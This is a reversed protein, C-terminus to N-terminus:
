AAIMRAVTPAYMHNVNLALSIRMAMRRSIFSLSLSAVAGFLALRTRMSKPM